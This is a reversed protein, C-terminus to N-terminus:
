ALNKKYIEFFIKQEKFHVLKSHFYAKLRIAFGESNTTNIYIHKTDTDYVATFDGLTSLHTQQVDLDSKPACCLTVLIIDIVIIFTTVGLALALCLRKNLLCAETQRM